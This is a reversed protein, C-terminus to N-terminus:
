GTLFSDSSFARIPKSDEEEDKAATKTSLAKLQAEISAMQSVNKTLQRGTLDDFCGHRVRSSQERLTQLHYPQYFDNLAHRWSLEAVVDPRLLDYCIYLCAAFLEKAGIDVFYHLLEEAVDTQKSEAATEAADKYLKDQKSLQISQDWKSNKKYLLAAIRRFELM